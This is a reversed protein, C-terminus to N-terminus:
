QTPHQHGHDSAFVARGLADSFAVTFWPYLSHRNYPSEPQLSQYNLVPPKTPEAYLNRFATPNVRM